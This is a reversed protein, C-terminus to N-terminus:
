HRKRPYECTVVGTLNIADDISHRTSFMAPGYGVGMLRGGERFLIEGFGPSPEPPNIYSAYYLDKGAPGVPAVIIGPEPVLKGQEVQYEAHFGRFQFIRLRLSWKGDTSVARASFEGNQKKCRAKSFTTLQKGDPGLVDVSHFAAKPPPKAGTAGPLALVALLV